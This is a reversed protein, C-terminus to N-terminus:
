QNTFAWEKDFWLAKKGRGKSTSASLKQLLELMKTEHSRTRYLSPRTKLQYIEKWIEYCELKEGVLPYSDFHEVIKKLHKLKSVKYYASARSHGSLKGPLRPKLIYINGVSGFFKQIEKLLSLNSKVLKIVFYLNFKNKNYIQKSFTFSAEGECFGTIYNPYLPM